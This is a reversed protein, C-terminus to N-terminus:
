APKPPDPTVAPDVAVPQPALGLAARLVTRLRHCTELGDPGVDAVLVERLVSPGVEFDVLLCALGNAQPSVEVARVDAFPIWLSSPRGAIPSHFDLRLRHTAFNAVFRRQARSLRETRIAAFVGTGALAMVLVLLWEPAGVVNAAVAGVLLAMAVGWIWTGATTRAPKATEGVLMFQDFRLSVDGLVRPWRRQELAATFASM